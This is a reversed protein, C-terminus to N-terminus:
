TIIQLICKRSNSVGSFIESKFTDFLIRGKHTQKKLDVRLAIWYNFSGLQAPHFFILKSSTLQAENQSFRYEPNGVLDTM